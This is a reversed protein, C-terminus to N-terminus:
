ARSHPLIGYVHGCENCHVVVFVPVNSHSLQYRHAIKEMGQTGCSPCKPMVQPTVLATM